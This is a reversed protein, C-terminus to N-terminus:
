VLAAVRAAAPTWAPRDRFQEVPAAIARHRAPQGSHSLERDRSLGRLRPLEWVGIAVLIFFPVFSSLLYREVFAPRLVYSLIMVILPPAWMWLLLFSVGARARRWASVVGWIALAAMVPFAFTGTAKNFLAFLEWWAPRSIWTFVGHSAADTGARLMRPLTPALLAVGAALAAILRLPRRVEITGFKFRARWLLHLIWLGEVTFAFLACPHLAIAIATFIAAGAYNALGGRRTARVFCTFQVLLALLLLPYMRAERSYKITVLNVAFVLAAVAAVLDYEARVFNDDGIKGNTADADQTGAALAGAGDLQLLERTVAFVLLIALTGASASLARMEALGDGFERMWGHLAADDLGLTAPNLRSHRLLVEGVSPAAAAAWSAGEDASMDRAALNAFRLWAGVALAVAVIVFTLTRTWRPSAAANYHNKM